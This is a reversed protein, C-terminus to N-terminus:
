QLRKMQPHLTLHFAAAAVAQATFCAVVAPTGAPPAVSSTCPLPSRNRNGSRSRQSASCGDRCPSDCPTCSIIYSQGLAPLHEHLQSTQRSLLLVRCQPCCKLSQWASHVPLHRILLPYLVVYLAQLVLCGIPIVPQRRLLAPPRFMLEPPNSSSPLGGSQPDPFVRNLEPSGSSLITHKDLCTCHPEIGQLIAGASQTYSLKALAGAEPAPPRLNM